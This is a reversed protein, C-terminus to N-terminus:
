IQDTLNNSTQTLGNEESQITGTIPDSLQTFNNALSSLGNSSSLFSFAASLQASSFGDIVSSDFSMKGTTDMTIGLDSLSKIAGSGQYSVLQQMDAQVTTISIDGALANASPGVEQDVDDLVTNYSNVFNTLATSLQSPDPSLSLTVTGNQPAQLLNITVGPTFNSIVNSSQLMPIGNLNFSANSGPTGDTLLNARGSAGQPGDLLQLTAAGTNVANVSLYSQGSSDTLVSATVPLGSKNIAAVVANLNNTEPTSADIELTQSGVILTLHGGNTSVATSAATAYPSNVSTHLSAATAIAQLNTIEFTAASTTGTATVTASSPDSSSGTLAQTSATKGLQTISQALSDVDSNLGILLTKNAIADSQQNQLAQVPIQAIAEARTLISQLDESYQSVGVISQTGYPNSASSSSSGSSSSTSSGTDLLSSSTVPSTSM